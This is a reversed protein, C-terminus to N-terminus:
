LFAKKIVLVISVANRETLFSWRKLSSAYDLSQPTFITVHLLLAQLEACKIDLEM